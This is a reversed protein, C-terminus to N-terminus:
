GGAQQAQKWQEKLMIISGAEGKVLKTARNVIEKFGAKLPV